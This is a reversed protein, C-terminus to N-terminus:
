SQSESPLLSSFTPGGARWCHPRSVATQLQYACATSKKPQFRKMRVRIKFSLLSILPSSTFCLVLWLTSDSAPLTEATVYAVTEEMGWANSKSTLARGKLSQGGSPSHGSLHTITLTFKWMKPRKDWMYTRALIRSVRASSKPLISFPNASLHARQAGPAHNIVHPASLSLFLSTSSSSLYPLYCHVHNENEM